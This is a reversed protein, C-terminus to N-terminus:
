TAEEMEKRTKVGVADQAPCKEGSQLDILKMAQEQQM